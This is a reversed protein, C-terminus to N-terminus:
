DIAGIVEIQEGAKLGDLVERLSAVMISDGTYGAQQEQRERTQIFHYLASALVSRQVRVM